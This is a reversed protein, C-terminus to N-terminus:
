LRSSVAEALGMLVEFSFPQGPSVVTIEAQARGKFIRILDITLPLPSPLQPIQVMATIRDAASSDGYTPLALRRTAVDSVTNGEPAVDHMQKAYGPQACAGFKESTFAAADRKAASETSVFRVVSSVTALSQTFDPSRVEATTRGSLDSVGLCAAIGALLENEGPLMEHPKANWGPPLDTAVLNAREAAKRDAEPSAKEDGGGGCATSIALVIVLVRLSISRM